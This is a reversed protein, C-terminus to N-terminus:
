IYYQISISYYNSFQITFHMLEELTDFEKEIAIIDETGEFIAKYEKYRAGKIYAYMINKNEM